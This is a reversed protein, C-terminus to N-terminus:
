RAATGCVKDCSSGTGRPAGGDTMSFSGVKVNEGEFLLLALAVLPLSPRASPSDLSPSLSPMVRYARAAELKGGRHDRKRM